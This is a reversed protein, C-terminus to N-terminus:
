PEDIWRTQEECIVNQGFPRWCCRRDSCDNYWTCMNGCTGCFGRESEDLNVGRQLDHCDGDCCRTYTENCWKGCEGCNREDELINVCQGDCCRQTEPDCNLGCAECQDIGPEFSPWSCIGNCCVGSAGCETDCDGCHWQDTKPNRCQGDCCIFGEPCKQTATGPLNCGGCNNEDTLVNTCQGYCCDPNQSDSCRHNCNGCNEPDFRINVCVGDCPDTVHSCTCHGDECVQDSRCANGCEGCNDEDTDLDTCFTLGKRASIGRLPTMTCETTGASCVCEGGQCERGPSCAHGCEGCNEPDTQPNVCDMGCVLWDSRCDSGGQGIVGCAGNMCYEGTGCRTECDGCHTESTQLDYCDRDCFTKGVPCGEPSSCQGVMCSYGAPCATECNGCRSEDILPNYCMNDCVIWDEACLIGLLGPAVTMLGCTGEQCVENSACAVGCAGCNGEDNQLDVCGDDCLAEKPSCKRGFLMGLIDPFVGGPTTVVKAVREGPIVGGKEVVATTPATTTGKPPPSFCYLSYGKADRGCLTRIGNCYTYGAAIAKVQALCSCGSACGTPTTTVVREFCYLPHRSSDYGCLTNKGGCYRYATMDVTAPNMCSCGKPCSVPLVATTTEAKVPPEFCYLSKGASDTGCVTQIGNCYEYGAERAASPDKCSCGSPCEVTAPKGYCYRANGASDKGCVIEKGGCVTSGAAKGEALSMCSCGSPCEKTTVTAPKQYCSLSNGATDKGCVIEKGGCYEYGAADAKAKELCSCGSPCEKTTVTAPKQYCYLSNGASDKGCVIEKGGCYEYGAAEAKAKELCSCGSPCTVPVPAPTVEKGYCYKVNKQLDYGCVQPKDGCYVYGVKKAEAPTLCDCGKDCAAQVSVVCVALGILVAVLFVSRRRDQFM